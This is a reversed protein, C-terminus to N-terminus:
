YATREPQGAARPTLRYARVQLREADTVLLAGMRGDELFLYVRGGSMRLPPLVDRAASARCVVIHLVRLGQM